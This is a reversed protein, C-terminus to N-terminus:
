YREPSEYGCTAAPDPGTRRVVSGTGLAITARTRMPGDGRRSLVAIGAVRAQLVGLRAACEAALERPARTRGLSLHPTFRPFRDACYPFPEALARRLETWPAAGDAAPDLWVTAYARHRFSRVGGLRIDFPEREAAAAALLPLAAPFDEEPVFGFLLNVHPPWRRIQPDHEARVGQIAPWLVAPPLWAVATRPTPASELRGPVAAPGPAPPRPM